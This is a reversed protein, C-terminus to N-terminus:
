TAELMFAHTGPGDLTNKALVQFGSGSVLLFTWYVCAIETYSKVM